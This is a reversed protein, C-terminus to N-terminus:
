PIQLKKLWKLVETASIKGMKQGVVQGNKDFLVTFPLVGSQNGLAKIFDIPASNAELLPFSISTKSAFQAINKPEDVGVAIFKITTTNNLGYVNDKNQIQKFLISLEPLEEVCPPCWPAWINILLPVGHLQKTQYVRGDPYRLNQDLFLALVPNKVPLFRSKLILGVTIGTLGLGLLLQRRNM